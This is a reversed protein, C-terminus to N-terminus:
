ASLTYLDFRWDNCRIPTGPPYEFDVPGLLEFGVKRCIANSAANELKPFAHVFRHAVARAALELAAATAHSAVGRGQFAPLVSWGIEYVSDGEWEREWWVVSGAPEKDVVIKYIGDDREYRAQRAAIEEPTEPGNLHEMMAPDNLLRELLDHDGASWRVLEIM